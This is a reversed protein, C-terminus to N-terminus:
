HATIEGLRAIVKGSLHSDAATAFLAAPDTPELEHTIVAEIAPNADLLTIADDIEHAFRFAGIMRIEESIVRSLAVPQSTPSVMGVQVHVGGPRLASAAATVAADVGSCEFVIDYSAEAVREQSVNVWTTAGQVAARKLAAPAVDTATIEAAGAAALGAITLLGIPGAGSVLVRAGDPVAGVSRSQEIAHLAVGLPEALAARRLPLTAPLERIMSRDLVMYEALSGQTHPWTSASGQYSGGPWLQPAHELGAVPRGWRAPHVTVPTGPTMAGTPDHAVAGSSEHGPILPERIVFDGNAGDFYYHLDSGCVGVFANRILVEGDRPEPMPVEEWRCDQAGRIVLAHNVRAADSHSNPEASKKM